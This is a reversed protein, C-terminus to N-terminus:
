VRRFLFKFNNFGTSDFEKKDEEKAQQTQNLEQDQIPVPEQPAQIPVPEQPAQIPVPLPQVEVDLIFNVEEIEIEEEEIIDETGITSNMDEDAIDPVMQIPQIPGINNIQNLIAELGPAPNLFNGM